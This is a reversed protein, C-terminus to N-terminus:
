SPRSLNDESGSAAVVPRSVTGVLECRDRTGVNIGLVRQGLALFVGPGGRTAVHGRGRDPHTINPGHGGAVVLGTHDACADGIWLLRTTTTVPM